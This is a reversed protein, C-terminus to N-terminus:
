KNDNHYHAAVFDGNFSSVYTNNRRPTGAPADSRWSFPFIGFHYLRDFSADPVAVGRALTAVPEDIDSPSGTTV